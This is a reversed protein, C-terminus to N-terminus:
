RATIYYPRSRIYEILKYDEAYFQKIFDTHYESLNNERVSYYPSDETHNIVVNAHARATPFVESVSTGLSHFDFAHAINSEHQKFTEIDGLYKTVPQYLATMENEANEIFYDIHNVIDDLRFNLWRMRTASLFRDIPDRVAFLVPYESDYLKAGHFGKERINLEPHSRIFDKFWLGGTKPIHVFDYM